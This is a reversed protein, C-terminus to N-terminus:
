LNAEIWNAIEDFSSGNDNATALHGSARSDIFPLDTCGWEVAGWNFFDSSRGVAKWRDKNVINCAVGLCCYTVGEDPSKMRLTGGAQKYRGSRLAKLWKAKFEPELKEYTESM